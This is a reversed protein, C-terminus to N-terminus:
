VGSIRATSGAASTSLLRITCAQAAASHMNPSDGAPGGCARTYRSRARRAASGAVARSCSNALATADQTSPSTPAARALWAVSAACCGRSRAAMLSPWYWAKLRPSAGVRSFSANGASAAAGSTAVTCPRAAKPQSCHWKSSAASAAARWARAMCASSGQAWCASAWTSSVSPRSVSPSAKRCCALPPQDPSVENMRVCLQHCRASKWM